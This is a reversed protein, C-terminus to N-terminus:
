GIQRIAEVGRAMDRQAYTETIDARSHGLLVQAAELGYKSRAETAFSHRLRNPTWRRQKQWEKLQQGLGSAEIRQVYGRMSEGARKALKGDPLFTADCAREIAQRYSDIRYRKNAIPVAV